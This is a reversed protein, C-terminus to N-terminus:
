NLKVEANVINFIGTKGAANIDSSITNTESNTSTNSEEMKIDRILGNDKQAIISNVIDTDLYIFQKMKQGKM